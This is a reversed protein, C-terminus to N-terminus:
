CLIASPTTARMTLVADRVSNEPELYVLEPLDTGKADLLDGVVLGEDRMLKFYFRAYLLHLIAHEIGGVYQDVPLWRKM